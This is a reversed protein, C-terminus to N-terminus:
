PRRKKRHDDLWTVPKTREMVLVEVPGFRETILNLVDKLSREGDRMYLAYRESMMKM